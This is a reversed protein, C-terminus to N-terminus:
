VTDQKKNKMLLTALVSMIVMVGACVSLCIIFAQWGFNDSISGLLVGSVASGVYIFTNLIGAAQGSKVRDKYYFPLITSLTNSLIYVALVLAMFMVVTYPMNVGYTFILVVSLAVSIGGGILCSLMVNKTWKMLSTTLFASFVAIIPLGVTLMISFFDPLAYVESLLKPFWSETGDRVLGTSACMLFIPVVALGFVKFFNESAQKGEVRVALSVVSEKADQLNSKEIAGVVLFFAVAVAILLAAGVFYNLKWMNGNFKNLYTFLTGLGFAIVVGVPLTASMATSSRAKYKEDSITALLKVTHPWLVSLVLGNVGWLVAMVVINGIFYMSATIAGSILLSATITWRSNMKDCLIGNIFQGAGYCFFFATNVLGALTDTVGYAQTVNVINVSYTRKGVYSIAYVLFCMVLLLGNRKSSKM